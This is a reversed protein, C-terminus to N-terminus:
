PKVMLAMFESVPMGRLSAQDAFAHQLAACQRPELQELAAATFRREILPPAEDRLVSDYRQPVRLPRSGTEAALAAPCGADGLCMLAFDVARGAADGAARKRVPGSAAGELWACSVADIIQLRTAGLLKAAVAASAVRVPVIEPLDNEFTIASQIEHAKIMASMVDGVALPTKGEAAASRSLYDAVALIAGLCDSPHAHQGALGDDDCDLWRVMVGINFAARVPELEFSTGPIRAGGPMTAGPVVPGLLQACAPHSLARFGNALANMLCYHATTYALTDTIRWDNACDATDAFARGFRPDQSSVVRPEPAGATM